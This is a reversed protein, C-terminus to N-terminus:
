FALIKKIIKKVKEKIENEKIKLNKSLEDKYDMSSPQVGILYIKELMNEFEALIFFENLNFSHSNVLVQNTNLFSKIEENSFLKVQGVVDNFDVADIIIIKEYEKIIDLLFFSKIGADIFSINPENIEESLSNVIKIGIGDDERLINGVGAILIKEM